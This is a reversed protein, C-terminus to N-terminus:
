FLELQNDLREDNRGFQKKPYMTRMYEKHDSKRHLSDNKRDYVWEEGNINVGGYYRAISFQSKSVNHYIEM